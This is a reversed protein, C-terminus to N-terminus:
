PINKKSGATKVQQGPSCRYVPFYTSNPFDCEHYAHWERALAEYETPMHIYKYTHFAARLQSFSSKFRYIGDEPEYGGGLVLRKKGQRRAWQITDYVVANTPRIQQYAHDAGGLYSYVNSRDHLYLTAAVIRDSFEAMVFRANPKMQEFISVFYDLPFYYSSSAEKRDMTQVYIRYFEHIDALSRAEFTHINERQARKINKRCAYSFQENWLEDDSMTTDVWVIERNVELHQPILLGKGDSWPNLHMFEAVIKTSLCFEHIRAAFGDFGGDTSKRVVIPGTYEPTVADFKASCVASAFPINAIPRLFLPYAVIDEGRRLVLLGGQFGRYQESLRVFELSGFVATDAPLTLHWQETAETTLFTDTIM